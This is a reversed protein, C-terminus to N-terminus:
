DIFFTVTNYAKCNSCMFYRDCKKGDEWVVDKTYLYGINCKPCLVKKGPDKSMIKVAEIWRKSEESPM